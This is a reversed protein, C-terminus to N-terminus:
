SAGGRASGVFFSPTAHHCSSSAELVKRRITGFVKFSHRMNSVPPHNSLEKHEPTSLSSEPHQGQRRTYVGMQELSDSNRFLQWYGSNFVLITLPPAPTM